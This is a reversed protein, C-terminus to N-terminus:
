KIVDLVSLWDWALTAFVGALVVGIVCMIIQMFYDGWEGSKAGNRLGSAIGWICGVALGIIAIIVIVQFLVTAAYTIQEIVGKDAVKDGFMQETGFPNDRNQALATNLFPISAAVAVQTYTSRTFSTTKKLANIM